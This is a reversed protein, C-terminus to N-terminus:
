TSYAAATPVGSSAAASTNYRRAVTDGRRRRSCRKLAWGSPMGKRTFRRASICDRNFASLRRSASSTSISYMNEVQNSTPKRSSRRMLQSEGAESTSFSMLYSATCSM